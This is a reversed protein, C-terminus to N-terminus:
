KERRDYFWSSWYNRITQEREEWHSLDPHSDTGVALKLEKDKSDWEQLVFSETRRSLLRSLASPLALWVCFFNKKNLASL